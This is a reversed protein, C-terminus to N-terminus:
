RRSQIFDNRQMFDLFKLDPIRRSSRISMKCNCSGLVVKGFQNLATAPIIKGDSSHKCDKNSCMLVAGKESPDQKVRKYVFAYAPTQCSSSWSFVQGAPGLEVRRVEFFSANLSPKLGNDERWKNAETLTAGLNLDSLTVMVSGEAM